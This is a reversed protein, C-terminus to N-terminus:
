RAQYMDDVDTFVQIRGGMQHALDRFRAKRLYICTGLLAIHKDAALEYMGMSVYIMDVVPQVQPSPPVQQVGLLAVWDSLTRYPLYFTM